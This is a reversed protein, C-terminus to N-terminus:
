LEEHMDEYNTFVVAKQMSEKFTKFSRTKIKSPTIINVLKEQKPSLNSSMIEQNLGVEFNEDTPHNIFVQKYHKLKKKCISM